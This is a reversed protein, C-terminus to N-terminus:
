PNIMATIELISNNEEYLASLYYEVAYISQLLSSATRGYSAKNRELDEKQNKM